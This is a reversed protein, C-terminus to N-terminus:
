VVRTQRMKRRRAVVANAQRIAAADGQGQELAKNAVEAWLRRLSETNAQHTHSTADAATWPM